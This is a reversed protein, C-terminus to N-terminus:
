PTIITGDRKRVTWNGANNSVPNKIALKENIDTGLGPSVIVNIICNEILPM